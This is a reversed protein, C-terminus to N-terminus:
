YNQAHYTLKRRGPALAYTAINPTDNKNLKALWVGGIMM